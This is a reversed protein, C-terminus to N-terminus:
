GQEPKPTPLSKRRAKVDQSGKISSSLQQTAPAQHAPKRRGRKAAKLRRTLMNDDGYTRCLMAPATYPKGTGPRPLIPTDLAYFANLLMGLVNHM